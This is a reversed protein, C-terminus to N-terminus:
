IQGWQLFLWYLVTARVQLRRLKREIKGWGQEVSGTM